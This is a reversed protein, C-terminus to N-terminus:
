YDVADLHPVHFVHTTSTHSIIICVRVTSRVGTAISGQVYIGPICCHVCVTYARGREHATKM